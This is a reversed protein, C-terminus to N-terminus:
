IIVVCIFYFLTCELCGFLKFIIGEEFDKSHLSALAYIRPSVIAAIEHVNLKQNCFTTINTQKSRGAIDLDRQSFAALPLALEKALLKGNRIFILFLEHTILFQLIVTFLTTFM